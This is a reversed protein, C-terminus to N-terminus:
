PFDFPKKHYCALVSIKWCYQPIIRVMVMDSAKDKIAQIGLQELISKLTCYYDNITLKLLSPQIFSGIVNITVERVAISQLSIKPFKM